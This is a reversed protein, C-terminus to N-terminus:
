GVAALSAAANQWRNEFPMVSDLEKYQDRIYVSALHTRNRAGSRELMRSIRNRVTQCSLYVGKAIEDDTLGASIMSVIEQDVVDRYPSQITNVDRPQQVTRWLSQSSLSRRGSISERLNRLLTDVDDSLNVVDDLGAQAAQVLLSNPVTQSLLVRRLENGRPGRQIRGRELCQAILLADILCADVRGPQQILENARSFGVSIDAASAVRAKTLADAIQAAAPENV